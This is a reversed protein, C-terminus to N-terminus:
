VILTPPLAPAFVPLERIICIYMYVYICIYMYVYICIYMYVYICIYMYVYICIYMYVYICIHIHRYMQYRSHLNRISVSDIKRDQRNCRAPLLPM